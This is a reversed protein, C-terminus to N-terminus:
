ESISYKLHNSKKVRYMANDALSFLQSFTKNKEGTISVGISMYVNFPDNNRIKIPSCIYENLRKCRDELLKLNNDYKMFIMFEDGGVRGIIDSERFLNKIRLSMTKLVIDGIFHGYQNNIETFNDIDLLFLAYQNSSKKKLISSINKELGSKNLLCTLKDYNSNLITMQNEHYSHDINSICGNIIPTKQYDENNTTLTLECWIESHDSRVMHIDIPDCYGSMQIIELAKYFHSADNGLIISFDITQDLPLTYGFVVEFNKDFLACNTKPNYEFSVKESHQMSQQYLDKTLSIRNQTPLSIDTINVISFCLRNNTNDSKMQSILAEIRITSGDKCQLRFLVNLLKNHKKQLSFEHIVEKYDEKVILRSLQNSYNNRIENETYGILNLFSPSLYEIDLDDNDSTCIIGTPIDKVIQNNLKSDEIEKLLRKKEEDIDMIVVILSPNGDQSYAVNGSGFVFLSSGDKKTIRFESHLTDGMGLQRRVEANVWEIDDPHVFGLAQNAFKEEIEKFSYGLMRRYGENCSLLTFNDDMGVQIIGAFANDVIASTSMPKAPRFETYALTSRNIDKTNKQKRTLVSSKIFKNEFESPTIPRSYLYGQLLDPKLQMIINETEFNEIGEVCSTINMAHCMEIISKLLIQDTVDYTIRELFSRDIKLEDASISRFIDLSAYGTGFDDFATKIGQKRLIYFAKNVSNFQAPESETLELTIAQPNLNYKLLRSIVYDPFDEKDFQRASVNVNMQFDPMIKRWLACQKFATDIIWNGVDIILGSNELIPIFVFPNHGETFSPSKYRLLAECGSLEKNNALVIPQYVLSFGEFNHHVSSRMDELLIMDREEKEAMETQYIVCQNQNRNKAYSLAIRANRYLQDHNDADKPYQCMGASISFQIDLGDITHPLHALDNIQHYFDILSEDTKYAIIGFSNGDLRFLEIDTPLISKVEDTFSDLIKNGFSYSFMDNFHKFNDISFVMISWIEEQNTIAKLCEYFSANDPLGTLINHHINQLINHKNLTM